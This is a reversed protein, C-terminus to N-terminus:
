GGRRWGKKREWGRGGKKWGNKKVVRGRGETERVKNVGTARTRGGKSGKRGLKRGGERGKGGM